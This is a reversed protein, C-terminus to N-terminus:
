TRQTGKRGANKGYFIIRMMQTYAEHEAVSLNYLRRMEECVDAFMEQLEGAQLEKGKLHNREAYFDMVKFFAQQYQQPTQIVSM